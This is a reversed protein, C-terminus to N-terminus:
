QENTDDPIYFTYEINENRLRELRYVFHPICLETADEPHKEIYSTSAEIKPM